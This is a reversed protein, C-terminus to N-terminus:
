KTAKKKHVIIFEIPRFASGKTYAVWQREETFGVPQTFADLKRKAGRKASYVSAYYERPSDDPNKGPMDITVQYIRKSKRTVEKITVLISKKKTM